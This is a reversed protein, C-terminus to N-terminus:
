SARKVLLHAESSELQREAKVKARPLFAQDEIGAGLWIDASQLQVCKRCIRHKESKSRGVARLKFQQVGGDVCSIREKM